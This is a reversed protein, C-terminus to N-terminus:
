NLAPLPAQTGAPLDEPVLEQLPNIMLWTVTGFGLVAAMLILPRDYSGSIRAIYGFAVGSLFGGMQAAMNM